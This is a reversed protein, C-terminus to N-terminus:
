FAGVSIMIVISTVIIILIISSVISVILLIIVIIIIIAIIFIIVTVITITVIVIILSGYSSPHNMSTAKKNTSRQSPCPLRPSHHTCSGDSLENLPNYIINLIVLNILGNFANNEIKKIQNKM